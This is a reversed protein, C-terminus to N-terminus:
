SVAAAQAQSIIHSSLGSLIVYPQMLPNVFRYRYRREPGTRQLIPGRNVDCFEKLHRAFAPIDYPKRMIESLPKKIDAPAFYGLQDAEALACATLVERFLNDKRPSSTAKHYLNQISQQARDLATQISASVHAETVELAGDDLALEAAFLSLLHTYHPLGQAFGICQASAGDTFTMGTAFCSKTIIEALEDHTMRPMRVQVLAREVSAHEAVLEDIDDAVGVLMITARLANDSFTKICDAMQRTARTGALRDFEDIVVVVQIPLRAIHYRIDDPSTANGLRDELTVIEQKTEASFGIGPTESRFKLERGIRRWIDKFSDDRSATTKVIAFGQKGVLVEALVNALSTKGVGREGFLALHQGRSNVARLIQSVEESRGAFLSYSDIPAGPSFARQLRARVEDLKQM